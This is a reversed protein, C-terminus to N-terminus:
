LGQGLPHNIRAEMKGYTFQRKGKTTMRASTYNAGGYSERKATIVLNGNSVTANQSRYYQQENNGWGGAGTEFNWNSTNVSTGNFEDSWVLVYALAAAASAGTPEEPPATIKSEKKCSAIATAFLLCALLPKGPLILKM